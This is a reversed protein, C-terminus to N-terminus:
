AAISTELLAEEDRRRRVWWTTFGMLSLLLAWTQPEPVGPAPPMTGQNPAMITGGTMGLPPGVVFSSSIQAVSLTPAVTSTWYFAASGGVGALATTATSMQFGTSAPGTPPNLTISPTNSAGTIGASTGAWIELLVDGPYTSWGNLTYQYTYDTLSGSMSGVDGPAYVQWNVTTADGPIASFTFNATGTFLPVAHAHMPAILLPMCTLAIISLLKKM